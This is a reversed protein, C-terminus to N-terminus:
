FSSVPSIARFQKVQTPSDLRGWVQQLKHNLPPPQFPVKVFPHSLRSLISISPLKNRTANPLLCFTQSIELAITCPKTEKPGTSHNIVQDICWIIMMYVYIYICPLWRMIQSIENANMQMWKSCMARNLRGLAAPQRRAGALVVFPAVNAVYRPATCNTSESLRSNCISQAMIQSGVRLSEAFQCVEQM